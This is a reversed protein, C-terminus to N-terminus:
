GADAVVGADGGGVDGGDADGPGADQPGEESALLTFPARFVQHANVVCEDPGACDLDVGFWLDVVLEYEGAREDSVAVPLEYTVTGGPQIQGRMEIELNGDRQLYAYTERLDDGHSFSAVLQGGVRAEWAQAAPALTRDVLLDPMSATWTTQGDTVTVDVSEGDLSALEIEGWFADMAPEPPGNVGIQLGTVGGCNNGWVNVGLVRGRGEREAWLSDDYVDLSMGIQNALPGPQCFIFCGWLAFYGVALIQVFAVFPTPSFLTQRTRAWLTRTTM